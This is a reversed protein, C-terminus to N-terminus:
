GGARGFGAGAFEGAGGFVEVPQHAGGPGPEVGGRVGDGGADFRDGCLAAGPGEHAGCDGVVGGALGDQRPVEVLGRDVSCGCGVAPVGQQGVKGGALGAGFLDEAAVLALVDSFATVALEFAGERHGGQEQLGVAADGSQDGHDAQGQQDEAQYFPLDAVGQAGVAFHHGAQGAVLAGRGPGGASGDELDEGAQGQDGGVVAVGDQDGFGGADLGM